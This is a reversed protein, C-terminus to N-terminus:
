GLAGTRSRLACFLYHGAGCRGGRKAPEHSNVKLITAASRGSDRHVTPGDVDLQLTTRCKAPREGSPSTITTTRTLNRHLRGRGDRDHRVDFGSCRVAAGRSRTETRPAAAHRIAEAPEPNSRPSPLTTLLCPREGRRPPNGSSKPSRPAPLLPRRVGAVAARHLLRDLMAAAVTADGFAGAWDAIGVNTTLITSSKLYRQNIM